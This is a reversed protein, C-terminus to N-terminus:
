EYELIPAKYMAGKKMRVIFSDIAEESIHKFYPDNKTASQLQERVQKENFYNSYFSITEKYQEDLFIINLLQKDEPSLCFILRVVLKEKDKKNLYASEKLSYLIFYYKSSISLYNDIKEKFPDYDWLYYKDRDGISYISKLAVKVEQLLMKTVENRWLISKSADKTTAVDSNCQLNLKARETQEILSSIYLLESQRARMCFDKEMRDVSQKHQEERTKADAELREVSQKYQEDRTKADAEYHDLTMCLVISSFAACIVTLLESDTNLCKSLFSLARFLRNPRECLESICCLRELICSNSIIASICVAIIIVSLILIARRTTKMKHKYQKQSHGVVINFFTM